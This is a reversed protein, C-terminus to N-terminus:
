MLHGSLTMEKQLTMETKRREQVMAIAQSVCESVRLEAVQAELKKKRDDKEFINPSVETVAIHIKANREDNIDIDVFSVSKNYIQRLVDIV